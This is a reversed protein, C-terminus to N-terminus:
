GGVVQLVTMSMDERFSMGGGGGGGLTFSGLWFHWRAPAGGSGLASRGGPYPLSHLISCLLCVAFHLVQLWLKAPVLHHTVHQSHLLRM